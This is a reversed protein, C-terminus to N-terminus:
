QRWCSWASHLVTSAPGFTCTMPVCSSSPKARGARLAKGPTISTITALGPEPALNISYYRWPRWVTTAFTRSVVHSCFVLEQRRRAACFRAQTCNPNNQIRPTAWSSLVKLLHEPSWTLVTKPSRTAPKPYVLTRTM